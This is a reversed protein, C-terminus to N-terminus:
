DLYMKCKTAAMSIQTGLIVEINDLGLEALTVSGLFNGGTLADFFGFVTCTGQTGTAEDFDIPDDNEVYQDDQGVPTLTYAGFLERAYGSGSMESMSAEIAATGYGVYVTKTSFVHALLDNELFNSFSM